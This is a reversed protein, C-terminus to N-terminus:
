YDSCWAIFSLDIGDKKQGIQQMMHKFKDYKTSFLNADDHITSFPTSQYYEVNNGKAKHYTIITRKCNLKQHLYHLTMIAYYIKPKIQIVLKSM